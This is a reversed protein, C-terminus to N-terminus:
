AEKLSNEIYGLDIQNEYKECDECSDNEGCNKQTIGLDLLTERFDAFISNDVDTDIVIDGYKQNFASAIKQAKTQIKTKDEKIDTIVAYINNDDLHFAMLEDGFDYVKKDMGDVQDALMIITDYFQMKIDEDDGFSYCEGFYQHFLPDGFNSLIIVNRIM